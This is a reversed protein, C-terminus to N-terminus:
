IFFNNEDGAPCARESIFARLGDEFPISWLFEDNETPILEFLKFHRLAKGLGGVGANAKKEAVDPVLFPQVPRELSNVIHDVRRRQFLDRCRFVIGRFADLSIDVAGLVDDIHGGVAVHLLDEGEAGVLRHVRDIQISGCLEAGVLQEDGGVVEDVWSWVM